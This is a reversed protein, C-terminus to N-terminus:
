MGSILHEPIEPLAPTVAQLEVQVVL